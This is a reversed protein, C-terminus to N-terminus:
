EKMEETLAEDTDQQMGEIQVFGNEPKKEEVEPEAVTSDQTEHVKKERKGLKPIKFGRKEREEKQKPVTKGSM